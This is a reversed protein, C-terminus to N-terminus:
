CFLNAMINDSILWNKEKIYYFQGQHTVLGCEVLKKVSLLFQNKKENGLFKELLALNVGDKQRLSLMIFENYKDDESLKESEYETKSIYDKVNQECWHRTSNNYSHAGPGIGLYPEGSWYASNHMAQKGSKAFNSIEYHNYDNQRMVSCLLNYNEQSVTEDVPKIEGKKLKVGLKTGPEISLHYASIHEPSLSMIKELSYEWQQTSMNPVGYILDLSINDFGAERADYYAKEAKQATHRRSFFKLIDDDFSQIGMSLRSIPTNQKIERLYELTIDEPNAELTVETLNTLDWHQSLESFLQEIQRPNLLSPTGGGIYITSIQKSNFFNHQSQMEKKMTQLIPRLHTTSAVSFFDCYSCKNQCFPIHIYIGPM